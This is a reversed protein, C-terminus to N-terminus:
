KADLLSLWDAEQQKTLMVQLELGGPAICWTCDDAEVTGFLAGDIVAEGKVKVLLTARKFKVEVDKKTIAMEQPLRVQIEEGKQQWMWKGAEGVKESEDKAEGKGGGKGGTMGGMGGMGPMGGGGKGGGMGGLMQMMASMDMGGAGGDEGGKGGGKGLMQMMASMDMGGTPDSAADDGEDKDMMPDEQEEKDGAKPAAEAM